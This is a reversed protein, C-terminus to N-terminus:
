RRRRRFVFYAITGIGVVAVGVILWVAWAPFRREEEEEDDGGGDGGGGGGGGGGGDGGKDKKTIISCEATPNIVINDADVNGYIDVTIEQICTKLEIAPIKGEKFRETQYRLPAVSCQPYFLEYYRFLSAEPGRLNEALGRAYNDYFKTGMFCGCVESPDGEGGLVPDVAPNLKEEPTFRDCFAQYFRDSAVNSRGYYDQCRADKLLNTLCYDYIPGDSLTCPELKADLGLLNCAQYELETASFNNDSIRSPVPVLCCEAGAKRRVAPDSSYYDIIRALYANPEVIELYPFNDQGETPKSGSWRPADGPGPIVLFGQNSGSRLGFPSQLYFRSGIKQITVLASSHDPPVNVPRSTMYDKDAQHHIFDTPDGNRNFGPAPYMTFFPDNVKFFPNEKTEVYRLTFPVAFVNNVRAPRYETPPFSTVYGPGSQTGPVALIVVTNDFLYKYQDKRIEIATPITYVRRPPRYYRLTTPIYLDYLQSTAFNGYTCAKRNVDYISFDANVNNAICASSNEGPGTGQIKVRSRDVLISEPCGIADAGKPVLFEDGSNFKKLAALGRPHDYCIISGRLTTEYEIYTRLVAWYIDYRELNYNNFEAANGISYDRGSLKVYGIPTRAPVRTKRDM